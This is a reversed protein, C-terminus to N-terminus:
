YEECVKEFYGTEHGCSPCKKPPTNGTHTYGCKRCTWNTKTKKKFITKKELENLLKSYREKHHKEAIAISRLRTAIEPFGEREAIKAFEPYMKTYEYEEGTM